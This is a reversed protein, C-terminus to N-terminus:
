SRQRCVHHLFLPATLAPMARAGQAALHRRVMPLMGGRATSLHLGAAVEVVETTVEVLPEVVAAMTDAAAVAVQRFLPSPHAAWLGAQAAMFKRLHATLQVPVVPPTRAQAQLFQRLAAAARPVAQLQRAVV